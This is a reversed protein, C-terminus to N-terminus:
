MEFQGVYISEDFAIELVYSGMPLTTIDVSLEDGDSVFETVTDVIAGSDNYISITVSESFGEFRIIINDAYQTASILMQAPTRSPKSPIPLTPRGPRLIIPGKTPVSAFAPLCFLFTALSFLLKKM